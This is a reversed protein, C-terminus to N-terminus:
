KRVNWFRWKDPLIESAESVFICLFFTTIKHIFNKIEGPVESWLHNLLIWFQFYLDRKLVLIIKLTLINMEVLIKKMRIEMRLNYKWSWRFHSCLLLTFDISVVFCLHGNDTFYRKCTHGISNFTRLSTIVINHIFVFLNEQVHM